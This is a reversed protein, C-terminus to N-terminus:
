KYKYYIWNEVRLDIYDINNIRNKVQEDLVIKLDNLQSEVPRDVSFYVKWGPETELHVERTLISPVWFKKVPANIRGPFERHLEQLFGVFNRTVVEKKLEVQRDNSDYVLPLQKEVVEDLAARCCIIGKDDVYHLENGSVWVLLLKKEKVTIKIIDTLNKEITLEELRPLSELLHDHLNSKSLLFINDAPLVWLRKNESFAAFQDDVEAQTVEFNDLLVIKKIKFFDAFFLFYVIFCLGVVSVSFYIKRLASSLWERQKRKARKDQYYLDKRLKQRSRALKSKKQAYSSPKKLLSRKKQKNLNIWSM